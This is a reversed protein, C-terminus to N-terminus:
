VRERGKRKAAVWNKRKKIVRGKEFPTRLPSSIRSRSKESMREELVERGKEKSEGSNESRLRWGRKDIKKQALCAGLEEREVVPKKKKRGSGKGELKKKQM